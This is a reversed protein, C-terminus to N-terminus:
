QVVFKKTITETGSKFCIFYVGKSINHTDFNLHTEGEYASNTVTAIERGLLDTVTINVNERRATTFQINLENNTPNPYLQITSSLKTVAPVDLPGFGVCSVSKSSITGHLQHTLSISLLASHYNPKYWVYSDFLFTDISPTGFVNASDIFIQHTHVRLVNSDVRSPLILTGYADCTDYTIGQEHVAMGSYTLVGAYTDLFTSLYTFPYHLQDMPDSFVAYQTASGYYGNQSLASTSTIVYNYMSTSPTFIGLSSGPFLSCEPTLYCYQAIGTDSSTISLSSFNWTINAGYAGPTIGLTDCNRTVFADNAIPNFNAATLTSQAHCITNVSVLLLVAIIKKQM